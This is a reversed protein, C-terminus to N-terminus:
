PRVASMEDAMKVAAYANVIGGTASLTGFRVRQQGGGPRLVMQDARRTASALIIRKVDAASLTPYYSMLMAALGTVVPAAMSTGSERKYGGGPVTSLIDVGPAFVDVQAANYNSFTAVLSDGGRWSSAGVEIWNQARGGSLYTATPFNSKEALDEGDNGAAHVMLVGKSDAYKVADDV